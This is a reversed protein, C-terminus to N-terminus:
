VSNPKRIGNEWDIVLLGVTRKYVFMHIKLVLNYAGISKRKIM